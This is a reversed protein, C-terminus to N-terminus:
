WIYQWWRFTGVFLKGGRSTAIAGTWQFTQFELLYSVVERHQPLWTNEKISSYLQILWYSSVLKITNLKQNELLPVTYYKRLFQGVCQNRRVVSDNNTNHLPPPPLLGITFTSNMSINQLLKKLPLSGWLPETCYKCLFQGVCHNRRVVFNNNTNHFPPKRTETAKVPSNVWLTTGYAWVTTAQTKFPPLPSM